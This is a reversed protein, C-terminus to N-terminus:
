HDGETDRALGFDLIVPEGGETIMINRPKIDRHIVGAEHATHLARATKEIMHVVAEIATHTAHTGSSSGSSEESEEEEELFDAESVHELDIFSTEARSEGSAATSIKASLSMGEVFRMAMFPAGNADGIEYVTCIGPHDLRSAIAAERQFRAIVKPSAQSWSTLVKLAVQRGLRTDEALFVVGQGGRGLEKIIRYPGVQSFVGSEDVHGMDRLLNDTLLLTARIVDLTVSPFQDHYHEPSHVSGETFDRRYTSVFDETPNTDTVEEEGAAEAREEAAEGEVERSRRTQEV